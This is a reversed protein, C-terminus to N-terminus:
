HTFKNQVAKRMKANVAMTLNLFLNFFLFVWTAM